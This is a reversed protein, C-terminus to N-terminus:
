RTLLCEARPGFYLLFMFLLFTLMNKTGFIEIASFQLSDCFIQNILVVLTNKAVYTSLAEICWWM